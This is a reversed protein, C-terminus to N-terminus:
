LSGSRARSLGRTIQRRAHSGLMRADIRTTPRLAGRAPRRCPILVSHILPHQLEPSPCFLPFFFCFFFSYLSPGSHDCTSKQPRVKLKKIQMVGRQRKVRDSRQLSYFTYPRPPATVVLKTPYRPTPRLRFRIVSGHTAQAVAGRTGSIFLLDHGVGCCVKEGGVVAVGSRDSRRVREFPRGEGALCSCSPHARQRGPDKEEGRQQRIVGSM